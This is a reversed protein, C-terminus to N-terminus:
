EIFMSEWCAPAMDLIITINEYCGSLIEVFLGFFGFSTASPAPFIRLVASVTLNNVLSNFFYDIM